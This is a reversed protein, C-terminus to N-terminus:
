RVEDLQPYSNEGAESWRGHTWLASLIDNAEDRTFKSAHEHHHILLAKGDPAMYLWRNCHRAVKTWSIIYKPAFSM